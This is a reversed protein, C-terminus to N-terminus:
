WLSKEESTYTGDQDPFIQHHETGDADNFYGPPATWTGSSGGAPASSTADSANSTTGGSSGTSGSWADAGSSSSAGGGSYGSSDSSASAEAAAAAQSQQAQWAAYADSVAKMAADTKAKADALTTRATALEQWQLNDLKGKPLAGGLETLTSALAVRLQTGPANPDPDIKGAVDKDLQFGAEQTKVAEAAEAELKTRLDKAVVGELEAKAAAIESAAWACTRQKTNLDDIAARLASLGKPPQAAIVPSAVAFTELGRVDTLAKGAELLEPEVTPVSACAAVAGQQADAFATLASHRMSAYAGGGAAGVLLVAAVGGAVWKKWSRRGVPVEDAVVTEVEPAEIEENLEM